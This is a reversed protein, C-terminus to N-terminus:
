FAVNGFLTIGSYEWSLAGDFRDEDVDVHARFFNYGGGFGFHKWPMWILEARFDEIYGDYPDITAEFYQATSNLYVNGGLRWMGRLGVVPLPASTDAKESRTQLNGPGGLTAALELDFSIMHAGISAAIEHNKGRKFAYEYALEGVWTNLDASVSANVPIVIDGFDVDRSASREGSRDLRFWQGRLHHRPSIRWLGDFRFRNADDFGLDRELDIETGTRRTSGDLRVSTDTTMLFGGLQLFANSDILSADEAQGWASVGQGLGLLCLWVVARNM